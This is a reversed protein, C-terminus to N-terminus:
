TKLGFSHFIYEDYIILISEFKFQWVHFRIVSKLSIHQFAVPEILHASFCIADFNSLIRHFIQYKWAIENCSLDFAPMWYVAVARAISENLSARKLARLHLRRSRFCFCSISNNLMNGGDISSYGAISFTNIPRFNRFWFRWIWLLNNFHM